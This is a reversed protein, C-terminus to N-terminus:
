YKEREIKSGRLINNILYSAKLSSFRFEGTSADNKKLALEILDAFESSDRRDNVHCLVGDAILDKVGGVDTSIVPTGCALSELIVMPIGEYFSPIMLISARNYIRRLKDQEFVPGSFYFLSEASADSIYKKVVPEYTGRGVIVGNWFGPERRNMELLTDVFLELGKVEEIRGVFLLIKKDIHDLLNCIATDKYFVSTDVFNPLLVAKGEVGHKKILNLCMNDIAIIHKAKKINTKRISEWQERLLKARFIRKKAKVLANTSGHMHYLIRIGPKIWYSLEEAHSYVANIEYKKILANIKRGYFFAHFRIPLITNRPVYAIPVISINKTLHIKEYLNKKNSTIGMLYIADADLYPLISKIVGSAGGLSLSQSNNWNEFDGLGLIAINFM